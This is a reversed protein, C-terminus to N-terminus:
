VLFDEMYYKYSNYSDCTNGETTASTVKMYTFMALTCGSVWEGCKVVTLM